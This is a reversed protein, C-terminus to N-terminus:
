ASIKVAVRTAAATRSWSTTSPLAGTIGTASGCGTLPNDLVASSGTDGLSGVPAGGTTQRMTPRTTAAGQAAATLWYKTGAVLPQSITVFANGVVTGDITGGDLLLTGPNNGTGDDNRIGLRVVAGATGAATISAALQSITCNRGPIFPACREVGEPPIGASATGTAWVYYYGVVCPAGLEALLAATANSSVSFNRSVELWNTGDYYFRMINGAAPTVNAAGLLALSTSNVLTVNSNAFIVEVADDVQAGTFATVSTASANTFKLLKTATGDLWGVNPTTTADLVRAVRHVEQVAQTNPGSLVPYPGAGLLLKNLAFLNHAGTAAFVAGATVTATDTRNLTNGVVTCDNGLQMFNRTVGSARTWVDNGIFQDHDLLAISPTGDGAWCTAFANGLVQLDGGGTHAIWRSGQDPVFVQYPATTFMNGTLILKSQGTGTYTIMAPQITSNTYWATDDTNRYAFSCNTIAMEYKQTFKMPSYLSTFSYQEFHCGYFEVHRTSGSVALLNPCGEIAIMIRCSNTNQSAGTSGDRLDLAAYTNDTGCKMLRCDDIHGDGVGAFIIGQRQFGTVFIGDMRFEAQCDTVRVGIRDVAGVITNFHNSGLIFIDSLRGGYPLATGTLVFDFIPAGPTFGTAPSYLVTGGMRTTRNTTGTISTYQGYIKLSANVTITGAVQYVGPPIYLAGAGSSIALTVAAQLTATSDTAGTRDCGQIVADIAATNQPSYKTAADAAAASTAASQAVSAAGAVDAGIVAPTITALTNPHLLMGAPAVYDDGTTVFHPTTM